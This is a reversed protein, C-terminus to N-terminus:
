DQFKRFHIRCIILAVAALLYEEETEILILPTERGSRLFPKSDIVGVGEHVSELSTLSRQM